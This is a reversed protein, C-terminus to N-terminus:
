DPLAGIYLFEAFLRREIEVPPPSFKSSSIFKMPDDYAGENELESIPLSKWHQADIVMDTAPIGLDIFKNHLCSVDLKENVLENTTTWNDNIYFEPCAISFDEDVRECYDLKFNQLWVQKPVRFFHIRSPINVTRTLTSALISKSMGGGERAQLTKSAPKVQYEGTVKPAIFDRVFCLICIIAMQVNETEDVLKLAMERVVPTKCDITNSHRLFEDLGDPIQWIFEPYTSSIGGRIEKIHELLEHAKEDIEFIHKKIDILEEEISPAVIDRCMDTHTILHEIHTHFDKLDLSTHAADHKLDRIDLLKSDATIVSNQELHKKIHDLHHQIEHILKDIQQLHSFLEIAERINSEKILENCIKSHSNLHELKDYIYKIDGKMHKIDQKLDTM